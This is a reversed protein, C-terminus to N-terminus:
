MLTGGEGVGDILARGIANVKDPELCLEPLITTCMQDGDAMWVVSVINYCRDESIGIGVVTLPCSGSNLCVIDGINLKVSNPITRDTM